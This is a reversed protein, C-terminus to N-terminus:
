VPKNAESVSSPLSDLTADTDSQSSEDRGHVFWCASIERDDTGVVESAETDGSLWVNQVDDDGSFGSGLFLWM